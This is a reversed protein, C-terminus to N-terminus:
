EFIIKITETPHNECTLEGQNMDAAIQISTGAAKEPIRLQMQRTGQGGIIEGATVMWQIKLDCEEHDPNEFEIRFLKTEGERAEYSDTWMTVNPCRCNDREEPLDQGNGPGFFLCLFVTAFALQVCKRFMIQIYM